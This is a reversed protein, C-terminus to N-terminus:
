LSQMSYISHKSYYPCKLLTLEEQGHAHYISGNIQIKNLKNRQNIIKLHLDKEEKM